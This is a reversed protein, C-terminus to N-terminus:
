EVLSDDEEVTSILDEPHENNRIMEMFTPGPEIVPVINGDNEDEEYTEREVGIRIFDFLNISIDYDTSQASAEKKMELLKAITGEIFIQAITAYVSNNKTTLGRSRLDLSTRDCIRKLVESDEKEVVELVQNENVNAM